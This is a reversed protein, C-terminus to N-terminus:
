SPILLRKTSQQFSHLTLHVGQPTTPLSLLCHPPHPLPPPPHIKIPTLLTPSHHPSPTTPPPLPSSEILTLLPLSPLPLPFVKLHQAQQKSERAASDLRSREAEGDQWSRRELQLRQAEAEQKLATDALGVARRQLDEQERQTRSSMQQVDKEASYISEQLGCLLTDSVM